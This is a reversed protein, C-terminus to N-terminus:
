PQFGLIEKCTVEILRSLDSEQKFETFDVSFYIVNQASNTASILKHGDFEQPSGAFPRVKFDAEFLPLTEGFPILPRVNLVPRRFILVPANEISGAATTESDTQIVFSLAGSPVPEFGQVPLFEFLDNDSAIDTTPINIFMTGGREFFELTLELAYGINRNLNNSVWYIHDWEALMMNITPAALSRDPFSSSLPVRRGGTATGDRTRLYDIEDFGNENLLQFHLEKREDGGSGPYDDIYLVTSRQKKVFWSHTKIESIAGANDVARLHFENEADLHVVDFQINTNNAARGTFVTATPPDVTDDVRLTIFDINTELATWNTTDNFAIEIRNLNADGDPDTATWGFSAIRYTTDPPLEFGRFNVVPPSNRIPFILCAPNPDVADLNDVARVFFAVDADTNGEEIPLIFTSDTRTTFSWEDDQIDPLDCVPNGAADTVVRSEELILLEYGTIYGDPDDGWWSINVQSVLREGEPLNIENVTLFTKPPQNELLQGDLGADCSTLLLGAFVTLLLYRLKMSLLYFPLIDM